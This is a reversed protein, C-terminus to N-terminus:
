VFQRLRITYLGGHVARGALTMIGMYVAICLADKLGGSNMTPTSVVVRERKDQQRFAELDAATPIWRHLQDSGVRWV